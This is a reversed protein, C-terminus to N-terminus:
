KEAVTNQQQEGLGTIGLRITQGPKLYIPPKQGLGVGAPTGTAIVDGPQLIFYRTLYSILYRINFVMEKTNSHQYRHGDVELWMELHQPDFIEDPTVLWPGIPAFTECSKGKIWQGTGEMQFQRESLDNLVCFGAIYDYAQAETVYKAKKGIIIGLEVEWDTKKSHRPILVDDYPGSIASTVKSFVVPETPLDIGTESAHDFYNLGICLYNGVQGVCPGIRSKADVVPLSDPDLSAIKKLNQPSLADGALDNIEGSLDRIKGHSDLLGPKEYGKPGYRLLRM